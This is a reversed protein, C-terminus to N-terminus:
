RRWCSSRRSRRAGRFRAIAETASLYHLETM